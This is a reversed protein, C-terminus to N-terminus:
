DRYKTDKINTVINRGVRSVTQTIM